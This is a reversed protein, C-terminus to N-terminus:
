KKLSKIMSFLEADIFDDKTPGKFHCIFNQFTISNCLKEIEETIEAVFNYFIEKQKDLPISKEKEPFM